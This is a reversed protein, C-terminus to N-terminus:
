IKRTLDAVIFQVTDLEFDAGNENFLEIEVYNARLGKGFTFRQQQLAPDYDRVKYIFNGVDTLLKIFLNGSASMGVYANYITKKTKSGFDRKGLHMYARIPDGADTDGDLQYIGDPGAGFYRGGSLAYSNFGYNTYTTSAPTDVNIVWTEHDLASDDLDGSSEGISTMLVNLLQQVAMSSGASAQSLMEAPVEANILMTSSVTGTSSMEVVLFNNSDISTSVAAYGVMSANLNGEFASLNGGLPPLSAFMEAYPHDAALMRLGLLAGTLTGTEGTLGSTDMALPPLVFDGVAYIPIVVGSEIQSTFAPLVGTIEAFEGESAFMTMPPLSANIQGNITTLDPSSVQVLSPNFVEDDGSYLSAELWGPTTAVGTVTGQSVGNMYYTITTGTRDIKFITGDVYTGLYAGIVGNQIIRAVGHSLFFAFDTTNGSYHADIGDYLNIGAIVGVVSARVQFQVYGNATFMAISRGGSNWGLNYGTVPNVTPVTTAPVYPHGPDAPYTVPVRVTSCGWVAVVSVLTAPPVSPTFIQRVDGNADVAYTVSGYGSPYQWGCVYRNEYVTREPTPPVYPQAPIEETGVVTEITTNKILSNTM